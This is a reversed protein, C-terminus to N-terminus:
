RQIYRAYKILNGFLNNIRKYTFPFHPFVIDIHSMGDMGVCIIKTNSSALCHMMNLNPMDMTKFDNYAKGSHQKSKIAEYSLTDLGLYIKRDRDIRESGCYGSQSDCSIVGDHTGIRDSYIKPFYAYIGRSSKINGVVHVYKISDEQRECKCEIENLRHLGSIRDYCKCSISKSFTYMPEANNCTLTSECPYNDKSNEVYEMMVQDRKKRTHKIKDGTLYEEGWKLDYFFVNLSPFVKTMGHYFRVVRILFKTIKMNKSICKGTKKDRLFNNNADTKFFYDMLFSGKCSGNITIISKVYQRYGITTGNADIKTHKPKLHNIMYRVTSAGQSHAILHIGNEQEFFFMDIIKSLYKARKEDSACPPLRMTYVKGHPDYNQRKKYSIVNWYNLGLVSDSDNDCGLLGHVMIIPYDNKCEDKSYDRMYAFGLMYYISHLVNDVSKIIIFGILWIVCIMHEIYNKCINSIIDVIWGVTNYYLRDIINM